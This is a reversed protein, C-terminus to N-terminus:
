CTFDYLYYPFFGFSLLLLFIVVWSTKYAPFFSTFLCSMVFPVCHLFLHEAGDAPLSVCTWFVMLCKWVSVWDAVATCFRCYQHPYRTVGFAAVLPELFCGNQLITQYIRILHFVWWTIQYDWGSTDSRCFHICTVHQFWSWWSSCSSIFVWADWMLHPSVQVYRCCM